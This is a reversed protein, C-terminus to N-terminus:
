KGDEQKIIQSERGANVDPVVLVNTNEKKFMQGDSNTYYNKFLYSVTAFGATVLQEKFEVMTPLGKHVFFFDKAAALLTTLFFLFGAKVIDNTVFTKYRGMAKKELATINM